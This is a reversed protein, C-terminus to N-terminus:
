HIMKRAALTARTENVFENFAVFAEATEAACYRRAFKDLAIERRTAEKTARDVRARDDKKRKAM